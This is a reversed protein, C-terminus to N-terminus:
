TSTDEMSHVKLIALGLGVVIYYSLEYHVGSPTISAPIAVILALSSARALCRMRQDGSKLGVTRLRLVLWLYAAIFFVFAIAGLDILMQLFFFHFSQIKFGEHILSSEAGGLGLGLAGSSFFRHLGYYYIHARTGTSDNTFSPDWAIMSIGRIIQDVISFIRKIGYTEIGAISVFVALSGSFFLLALVLLAARKLPYNLYAPLLMLMFILALFIGKSGIIILLYLALSFGIFAYKRNPCLLIFPLGLLLVFAFDNQNWNFGTPMHSLALKATENLASLDIGKYGFLHAYASYPSIPLRFLGTTEILGIAMNLGWLVGVLQLTRWLSTRETASQYVAALAILGCSWYAIYRAWVKMDVAWLGSLLFYITLLAFALLLQPKQITVTGGSAIKLTTIYLWLIALIHFAYLSHFSLVSGFMATIIVLARLM